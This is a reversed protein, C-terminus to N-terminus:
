QPRENFDVQRLMKPEVAAWLVEDTTFRHRYVIAAYSLTGNIVRVAGMRVGNERSKWGGGYMYSEREYFGDLITRLTM